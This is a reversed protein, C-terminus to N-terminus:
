ETFSLELLSAVLEDGNQGTDEGRATGATPGTATAAPDAERGLWLRKRRFVPAPLPERPAPAGDRLRPDLQAAVLHANTGGLGFSSLGAVRMRQGPAWTRLRTNPFFPSADFDFRPNPTECFLTPPIQGHEVALVVKILGAVGAASLLHGVNSKVSGIACWGTRDSTERYVDTLARLEIPDGILTGTGHAEVMGIEGARRGAAALAKRIVDAQAAPNPTTIGMTHGDNNVAVAEIVAHVRDGDALAAALPKLLVAGCGEGPVFGDAREDFTACRGSPSIARAASFELYPQEDLLVEVGGAVAIEADGALLARCALQVSVLSSSCASDVVLNPGRFDFHHAVHAAIFNQDSQLVAPRLGARRGYSSIRGGVFVGVDRGWLEAGTYGADALCTATAELFLRIGPDLCTAEEDGMGFYAADFDEIGDLFGGWKSLSRGVAPVPDYLRRHDWRSAPVETVSCRGSLLNAWYTEVDPAGPFRCAMGIVAIKGATADDRGAGAPPVAREVATVPGADPAPGPGPEPMPVPGPEPLAGLAPEPLAALAPEPMPDPAPEPAFRALYASLRELTSHDLLVSPELRRGLHEEIQQLLEGLMVSEVGLEAFDATPDLDGAPLGVNRAFLEVLWAPPRGGSAGASVPQRAATPVSSMPPVSSVPPGSAASPAIAAGTSVDGILAADAEPVAWPGASPAASATGTLLLAGPDPAVGHLPPCPLVSAGDPLADAPLALVRELVRLGEADGLSDLGVPECVNPGGRGSGSERWMPWNVSRFADHGQRAKGSVYFDMFANAAAYDAVGAALRPVAACVSSFTLFFAPRDAECVEALAELGDTKPELVARMEVAGKHAFVPTGRGVRGACHVVGAVPGWADRVSRIFAALGARDSLRGTHARVEAGRRELERVTAVAAASPEPLSPDDWRERPPLSRAGVLVIRRAGREVLHRAVRAGIGRTAGSLVYPADAALRPPTHPAEVPVLRPELRRGARHCVEGYRSPDGWEDLVQRAVEAAQSAPVDTDLVTARVKGYEAGLMRVFGALRAGALTAPAGPAGLLGRTVHVVRLGAAHRYSVLQQLMALRAQWRGPGAPADLDCLDVWGALDPHRALLVGVAEVAGAEDDYCLVGGDGSAPGTGNRGPDPHAPDSHAPDSHAAGERVLLVRGPGAARALERAVNETRDGFVCLLPGEASAFAPVRAADAPVWEKRYLPIERGTHPGEGTERAYATGPTQRADASGAIPAGAGPEYPREPLWCRMRAFPYSPLAILRPSLGEADQDGREPRSSRSSRLHAGHLRPWDVRGGGAWHAAIERLEDEGFGPAYAPDSVSHPGAVPVHGAGPAPVRPLVPGPEQGPGPTRGRLVDSPEEGAAFRELLGAAERSDATVLALRERLPERGAQLTYAVDALDHRDGADRLWAAMRGALRRLADRDQGSLVLVQPRGAPFRPREPVDAYEELVVHAITGGAGFSSVGARRPLPRGRGDEREPWPAAERQVRFPVRDWAIKPNLEEAHLSPAFTGHRMQLVVKTLGAIGAAAEVHGISSKVSGIAVAGPPLGADGFARMLGDIEIPDGLATGAGHAELYGITAPDVGADRLADRVMEGQAAPNPVIWGNTRGMHVVSSGRIVAHVRDGDELARRLPKLVVVGVGESPVFGDGGLGFSRCRLDSATLKMRRQQIFKNPHLSLNVAGAIAMEAEGRRLAQVALHIAVLSSSCMTDITMSPGRLDFHFSVRNAIGGIASGSDQPNGRLTQEVGFFPYENYMSGAYVAVRSGHRERLRRRPYGADELAEWTVELFLREQPDMLAADRPTINFLLPDFTDVEDLFGGWMIDAPWGPRRRADPLPGVCDRGSVLNEWFRDLDPAHPYRGAIGVIAIARDDEDREGEGRLDGRAALAELRRRAQGDGADRDPAEPEDPGADRHANGRGRGSATRGPEDTLWPGDLGLLVGAVGALDRHEFFLTPSVEGLDRALADNLRAVIYSTLGYHELPVYAHLQDAPIGSVEAYRAKLYDEVRARLLPDDASARGPDGGSAAGNVPAAANGHAGGSVGDASAAPGDGDLAGSDEARPGGPSPEDSPGDFPYTPLPVRAGPVPWCDEWAVDHGALWAAAAETESIAGGDAEAAADGANATGSGVSTGAPSRGAAPSASTGPAGPPPAVATRLAPHDRGAVMADLAETLTELDACRVALRHSMAVRGTQLTFAVDAPAPATGAARAAVLHDRLRRAYRNLHEESAASLVVVHTRPGPQAARGDGPDPAWSAGPGTAWPDVLREPETRNM